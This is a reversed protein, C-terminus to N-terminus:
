GVVEGCDESVASRTCVSRSSTTGAVSPPELASAYTPPSVADLSSTAEFSALLNGSKRSKTTPTVHRTSVIANRESVIAILAAHEVISEAAAANPTSTATKWHPQACLRTPRSTVPGVVENRGTITSEIRKPREM